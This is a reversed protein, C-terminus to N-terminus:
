TRSQPLSRTASQNAAFVANKNKALFQTASQTDIAQMNAIYPGNYVVQPQGGMSGLQNNPIITGSTKPVFLEPGREGVMYSNMGSVDGGEAKGGWFATSGFAPSGGGGGGFLGSFFGGIGSSKFLSTAQAKLQIKILDSIISRALDSFSLKGTQVFQDLAQELNQTVSVFAQEGMKAANTASDTYSAFAKKWGFEFSRQSEGIQYAEQARAKEAEAWKNAQDETMRRGFQDGLTLQKRKQEIDFLELQLKRENESVFALENEKQLREGKAQTILLEKEYFEQQRKAAEKAKKAEAQAEKDIAETVNRIDKKPAAIGGIGSMIGPINAGQVSGFERQSPAVYKGIGEKDKWAAWWGAEKRIEAFRDVVNKSSKQWNEMALTLTDFAPAVANAITIKLNFFFKDLRDVSNAIKTFAVESEEFKSKNNQLQDGLSKIDLGRVARGFMDMATANRKTTDEISALAIATKEFLEQPTLTRLDKLSVGISSFAKQAKEGGQAAEDVKNAFSAMLKGADDSNGGSLQLASSLRLVSQISMDNAKAVEEIRDAFNIAERASAAFATGVALLSIKASTSFGEVKDKAKGLNANFEGADLGLLVALRSIIAM